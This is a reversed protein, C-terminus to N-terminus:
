GPVSEGYATSVLRSGLVVSFVPFLAGTIRAWSTEVMWAAGYSCLSCAVVYAATQALLLPILRDAASRRTLLFFGALAALPLLAPFIESGAISSLAEGLRGAWEGLRRPTLLSFDFTRSTVSGRVLRLVLGHAAPPLLLCATVPLWARGRPRLALWALGALGSFLSGEVKIAACFFAAVALRGLVLGSDADSADLLASGLLLLGLALPIEALGVHAAAYLPFFVGVLAAAVAGGLPRSRRALYGFAALAAAAHCAPYLLALARDDWRRAWSALAALDLPLLLPYQPHSWATAPDHFLRGPVSATLFITKAKFGWIALYDVTWMPESLASVGFLILGAASVCLLMNAAAGRPLLGPSRTEAPPRKLLLPTMLVATLLALPATFEAGSVTGMLVLLLIAQAILGAALGWAFREGATLDRALPRVLAYGSLTTAILALVVAIM